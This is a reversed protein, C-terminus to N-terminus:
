EGGGRRLVGGRRERLDSRESSESTKETAPCPSKWVQGPFIRCERPRKHCLRASEGGSEPQVDQGDQRDQVDQGDDSYGCRSRTHHGLRENLWVRQHRRDLRAVGTLEPRQEILFRVDVGPLGIAGRR